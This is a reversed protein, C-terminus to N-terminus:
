IMTMASGTFRSTMTCTVTIEYVGNFIEAKRGVAGAVMVDQRPLQQKQQLLMELTQRRADEEQKKAETQWNSRKPSRLCTNATRTRTARVVSLLVDRLSRM